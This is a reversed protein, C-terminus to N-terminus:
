EGAEPIPRTCNPLDAVAAAGECIAYEGVTVYKTPSGYEGTPKHDECVAVPLHSVPDWYVGWAETETPEDKGSPHLCYVCLPRMLLPPEAYEPDAAWGPLSEAWLRIRQYAEASVTVRDDDVSGVLLPCVEPFAFGSAWAVDWWEEADNEWNVRILYKDTPHTASMGTENASMVLGM